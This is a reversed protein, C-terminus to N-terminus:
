VGRRNPTASLSRHPPQGWRRPRLIRLATGVVARVTGAELEGAPLRPVHSRCGQASAWSSALHLLSADSPSISWLRARRPPRCPPPASIPRARAAKGPPVAAPPRRHVVRRRRRSGYHLWYRVGARALIVATTGCQFLAVHCADRARSRSSGRPVCSFLGGHRARRYDLVRFGRRIVRSTCVGM